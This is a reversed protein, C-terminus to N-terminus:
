TERPGRLETLATEIRRWKRADEADGKEDSSRQRQAAIVIAKPGYQEFLQRAYSAIETEQM